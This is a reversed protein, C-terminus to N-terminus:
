KVELGIPKFSVIFPSEATADASAQILIYAGAKVKLSAKMEKWEASHEDLKLTTLNLTGSLDSDIVALNATGKGGQSFFSVTATIESGSIPTSLITLVEGIGLTAVLTKGDMAFSGKPFDNGIGGGVVNTEDWAVERSISSIPTATPTPETEISTPTPPVPTPTVTPTATPELPNFVIENSPVFAGGEAAVYALLRANRLSSFEPFEATRETGEVSKQTFYNENKYIHVLFSSPDATAKWSVSFMGGETVSSKVESVAVISIPTPTPQIPVPTPTPPNFGTLDPKVTFKGFGPIEAEVHFASSEPFTLGETKFGIVVGFTQTGTLGEGPLYVALIPDKAGTAEPVAEWYEKKNELKGTLEPITIFLYAVDTELLVGAAQFVDGDAKWQFEHKLTDAFPQDEERINAATIQTMVNPFGGYSWVAEKYVYESLPGEPHTEQGPSFHYTLSSNYPNYVLAVKDKVRAVVTHIGSAPVKSKWEAETLETKGSFLPVTAGDVLWSIEYDYPNDSDGLRTINKWVEPIDEPFGKDALPILDLGVTMGSETPFGNEKVPTTLSLVKVAWAHQCVLCFGEDTSGNMICGGDSTFLVDDSGFCGIRGFYPRAPTTPVPVDDDILAAWPLVDRPIIPAGNGDKPLSSDGFLGIERVIGGCKRLEEEQASKVLGIAWYHDSLSGILHGLEHALVYPVTKNDPMIVVRNGTAYDNLGTYNICIAVFDRETDKKRLLIQEMYPTFSQRFLIDTHKEGVVKYLYGDLATDVTIGKEADDVGSEKSPLYVAFVNFRNRYPVSRVFFDSQKKTFAFFSEKESETYGEALIIINVANTGIGKETMGASAPIWDKDAAAQNLWRVEIRSDDIAPATQSFCNNSGMSILLAVVLTMGAFAPIRTNKMETEKKNGIRSDESKNSGCLLEDKTMGASAQRGTPIAPIWNQNGTMGASAPIWKERQCRKMIYLFLLALIVVVQKKLVNM